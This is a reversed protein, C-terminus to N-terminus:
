LIGGIKVIVPRNNLLVEAEIIRDKKCKSFYKKEIIKLSPSQFDDMVEVRKLIGIFCNFENTNMSCVLIEREQNLLGNIFNFREYNNSCSRYGSLVKNPSPKGGYYNFCLRSDVWREIDNDGYSFNTFYVKKM